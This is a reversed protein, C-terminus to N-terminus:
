LPADGRHPGCEALTKAVCIMMQTDDTYVLQDIPPSDVIKRALGFQYYIAEPPVGEFPAALADGIAQGLLCGLFRDSLQVPPRTERNSDNM